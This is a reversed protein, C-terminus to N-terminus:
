LGGCRARTSLGPDPAGFIISSLNLQEYRDPIRTLAFEVRVKPNLGPVRVQGLATSETEVTM